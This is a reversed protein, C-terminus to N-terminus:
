VGTLTINGNTTRLIVLGEGTGLTGNLTNTTSTQNTITLNSVSITGNALAISLLANTTTPITLGVNGNVTLLDIEEDGSIRADAVIDGNTLRVTVDDEVDELTVLGNVNVVSVGEDLDEISVEGNVNIIQGFLREPVTLDYQVVLSCPDTNVPQITQVLIETATVDVDVQLDDIQAEAQSRSCNQVQRFGSVTFTEGTSLGIVTVNGNIGILRFGTKGTADEVFQFPVSIVALGGPGTIEDEGCATFPLAILTSVTATSLVRLASSKLFRRLFTPLPDVMAKM